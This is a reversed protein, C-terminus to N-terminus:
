NEPEPEILPPLAYANPNRLYRNYAGVIYSLMEYDSAIVVFNYSPRYKEMFDALKSDKLGTATGVMSRNFRYDIVQERYDREILKQLKKANRGDRSIMNYLADISLGAPGAGARPINLVDRDSVPGYIKSYERKLVELKKKPNNLSDYINVTPLTISTRKLYVLLVEQGSFTVTDARYNITSFSLKDGAKAEVSFEGKLNNYSLVRTRLNVIQVRALRTKTDVDYVVGAAKRSQATSIAPLFFAAFLACTLFQRLM